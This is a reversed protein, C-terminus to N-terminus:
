ASRPNSDRGRRKEAFPKTARNGGRERAAQATKNPLSHHPESSRRRAEHAFTGRVRSTCIRQQWAAERRAARTSRGRFTTRTMRRVPSCSAFPRARAFTCGNAVRLASQSERSGLLALFTTRPASRPRPRRVAAARTRRPETRSTRARAQPGRPTRAQERQDDREAPALRAGHADARIGASPSFAPVISRRRASSTASSRAALPTECPASRDARDSSLRVLSKLPSEPGRAMAHNLSGAPCTRETSWVSYGRQAPGPEVPLPM